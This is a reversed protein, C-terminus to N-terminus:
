SVEGDPWSRFYDQLYTSWKYDTFESVYEGSWGNVEHQMNSLILPVDVLGAALAARFDMTIVRHSSPLCAITMGRFLGLAWPEPSEFSWRGM